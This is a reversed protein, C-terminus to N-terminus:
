TVLGPGPVKMSDAVDSDIAAAPPELETFTDAALWQVHVATEFRPHIDIVLPALPVPFPM